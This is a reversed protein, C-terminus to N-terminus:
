YTLHAPSLSRYCRSLRTSHPRKGCTSVKIKFKENLSGVSRGRTRGLHNKRIKKIIVLGDCILILGLILFAISSMLNNGMAISQVLSLLRISSMVIGFLLMVRSLVFVKKEIKKDLLWPRGNRSVSHEVIVCMYGFFTIILLSQALDVSHTKGTVMITVFISLMGVGYDGVASEASILQARENM